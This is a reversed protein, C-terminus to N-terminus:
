HVADEPDWCYKQPTTAAIGDLKAMDEETLVFDFVDHNEQIREESSAKPIVAAGNQIGWRLLVQAPTRQVRSAVAVVAANELLAGVGLSAYAVVQIKNEACLQRLDNQPCAPHMEFQHVHPVVKAHELLHKLHRPQFNSIGISRVKGDALAEEM